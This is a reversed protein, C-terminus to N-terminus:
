EWTRRDQAEEIKVQKENIGKRVVDSWRMKPRGINRHGGVKMKRTRMVVDRWDKEECPRVMETEGRKNEWKHKGCRGKWKNRWEQDKWDEKNGDDMEVNENRNERAHRHWSLGYRRIVYWHWEQEWNQVPREKEWMWGIMRDEDRNKGYKVWAWPGHRVSYLLCSRNCALKHKTLIWLENTSFDCKPAAGRSCFVKKEHIKLYWRVSITM